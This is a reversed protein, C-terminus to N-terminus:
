VGVALMEADMASLTRRERDEAEYQWILRRLAANDRTLQGAIQDLQEPTFPQFRRTM